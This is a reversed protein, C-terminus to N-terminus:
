LGAPNSEAGKSDISSGAAGDRDILLARTLLRVAKEHQGVGGIPLARSQAVQAARWAEAGERGRLAYVDEPSIGHRERQELDLKQALTLIDALCARISDDTYGEQIAGRSAGAFDVGAERLSALVFPRVQRSAYEVCSDVIPQWCALAMNLRFVHERLM